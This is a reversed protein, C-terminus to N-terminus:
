GSARLISGRLWPATQRTFAPFRHWNPLQTWPGQLVLAKGPLAPKPSMEGPACTDLAGARTVETDRRGMGWM